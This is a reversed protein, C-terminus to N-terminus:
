LTQSNSNGLCDKSPFTPPHISSVAARCSSLPISRITIRSCPPESSSSISQVIFIHLKRLYAESPDDRCFGSSTGVSYRSGFIIIKIVLIAENM